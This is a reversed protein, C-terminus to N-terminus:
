IMINIFVPFRFVYNYVTFEYKMEDIFNDVVLDFVELSPEYSRNKGMSPM